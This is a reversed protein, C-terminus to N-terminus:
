YAHVAVVHVVASIALIYVFPVHAVHWWSFLRHWAAFMAVRQAGVLYTDALRRSQRLHAKMQRRSWGETHAVAVLRRRLEARCALSASWRVWPMILMTRIVEVGGRTPQELAYREFRRCREIVAPAFRLRTAANDDLALQGRLGALTEKEGNLSRHVRLYLFRGVVGSLAVIVMSYFAVGANLSGIQFGSHLLILVPGLVGLTMHGFFWHGAPGARRMFGLHKRMPYTLLLLMGVGGAVGLWYATDSKSDYLGLRTFGWSALVLATILLYIYLDQTGQTRRPLPAAEAAPPPAAADTQAAAKAPNRASPRDAVTATDNM